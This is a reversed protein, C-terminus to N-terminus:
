HDTLSVQMTVEWTDKITLEHKHQPPYSVSEFFAIIKPVPAFTIHHTHGALEGYVIKLHPKFSGGHALPKPKMMAFVQKAKSGILLSALGGGMLKLFNRRNLM